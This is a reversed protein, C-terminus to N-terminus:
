AACHVHVDALFPATGASAHDGRVHWGRRRIARPCQSRLRFPSRASGPALGACLWPPRRPTTRPRQHVHPSSRRRWSARATHLAICRTRVGSHLCGSKCLRRCSRSRSSATSRCAPNCRWSQPWASAAHTPAASYWSLIARLLNVALRSSCTRPSARRASRLGLTRRRAHALGCSTVSLSCPFSPRSRARVASTWFPFSGIKHRRRVPM